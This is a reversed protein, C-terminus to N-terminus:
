AAAVVQRTSAALTSAGVAYAPDFRQKRTVVAWALHLLKRAAACRAVKKPKGAAVLREYLTKIVPNHRAAALTAMYLATRLRRNGGHGIRARSRVSTGSQHTLPALGAYATAARPHPCLQFNMTSVLLWGATVLGIGTISTLYATSEAWAGDRLAQGLESELTEIREDLDAIVDELHRQVAAEVVPWQCLAHLHNRAQQRMTILADRAVLRQRVQHYVAPPPTWRPTPREAAFQALLQADLRDTKARRVLSRAYHHIQAPNVVCVLFGAAHLTTALAIWYSGTAELVVRTAQAPIGTAALREVFDQYDDTTQPFTATTPRLQHAPSHWTATFSTAAIDVGVFLQVDDRTSTADM